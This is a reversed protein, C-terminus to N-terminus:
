HHSTQVTEVVLLSELGDMWSRDSRAIQYSHAITLNELSLSVDALLIRARRAM